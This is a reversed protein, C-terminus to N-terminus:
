KQQKSLQICRKAQELVAQSAEKCDQVSYILPMESGSWNQLVSFSSKMEGRRCKETSIAQLFTLDDKCQSLQKDM